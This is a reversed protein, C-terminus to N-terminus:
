FGKITIVFLIILGDWIGNTDFTDIVTPLTSVMTDIHCTNKDMRRYLFENISM